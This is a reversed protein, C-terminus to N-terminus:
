WEWDVENGFFVPGDICIRKNRGKVRCVCALCAGVGCGMREELSVQCRINKRAAELAVTKMMIKPGCAMIMDINGSDLIEKAADTVYGKKGYSGDDTTIYVEGTHAAFEREFSVQAKTKFGLLAVSQGSFVSAAFYLPYIGIGGGVFLLKKFPEPMDFGNGLPGLLDIKDGSQLGAMWATGEGRVDYCITIQGNQAKAISIPRRLTLNNCKIHVFQGPLAAQAIEQAEITMAYLEHELAIKQNSIIKYFETIHKLIFIM